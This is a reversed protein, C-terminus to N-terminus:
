KKEETARQISELILQKAVDVDRWGGIKVWKGPELDKYHEFFHVIREVLIEPLERYDKIKEYYRTLKPHPVALIKEDQGKDDTMM